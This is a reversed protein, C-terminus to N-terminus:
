IVEEVQNFDEEISKEVLYECHKKTVLEPPTLNLKECIELIDAVEVFLLDVTAQTGKQSINNGAESFTLIYGKSSYPRISTYDIVTMRKSINESQYDFLKISCHYKNTDIESHTWHM